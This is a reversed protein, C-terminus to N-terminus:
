PPEISLDALIMAVTLETVSKLTPDHRWIKSPFVKEEAIHM